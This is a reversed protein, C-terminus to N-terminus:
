MTQVLHIFRLAVAVVGIRYRVAVANVNVLFFHISNSRTVDAARFPNPPLREEYAISFLASIASSMLALVITCFSFCEMHDCARTINLTLTFRMKSIGNEHNQIHTMTTVISARPM